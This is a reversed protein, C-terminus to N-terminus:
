RCRQYVSSVGLGAAAASAVEDEDRRLSTEQMDVVWATLILQNQWGRTPDEHDRYQKNAGLPWLIVIKSTAAGHIIIVVWM